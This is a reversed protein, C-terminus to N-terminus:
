FAKGKKDSKNPQNDKFSMYELRYKKGIHWYPDFHLHLLEGFLFIAAGIGLGPLKKKEFPPDNRILDNVVNLGVYGAGGLQFIFGNRVWLFKEHGAVIKVRDNEFVTMQKKTPLAYIDSYAFAFGSIHLTDTGMAYYRIIEQILYFSDPTIRTIEGMLWQKDQLQFTITSGKWFYQISRGKKKLIM